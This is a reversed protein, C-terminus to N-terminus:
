RAEGPSVQRIAELFIVLMKFEHLYGDNKIRNARWSMIKVNGPVYGKKPDIKDFSPANDARGRSLYDLQIGLVPCHTPFHQFYSFDIEVLTGKKKANSVLSQFKRKMIKYIETNRAEPTSWKPGFKAIRSAEDERAKQAQRIKFSDIGWQKAYQQIRQGSLGVSSAISKLTKGALLERRIFERNADTLSSQFGRKGNQSQTITQNQHNMKFEKQRLPPLSKGFFLAKYNPSVM